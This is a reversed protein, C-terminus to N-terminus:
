HEQNVKCTNHRESIVTNLTKFYNVQLRPFQEDLQALYILAEYVFDWEPTMLNGSAARVRRPFM